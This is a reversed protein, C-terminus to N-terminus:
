SDSSSISKEDLIRKLETYLSNWSDTFNTSSKLNLYISNIYNDGTYFSAFGNLTFVDNVKNQTIDRINSYAEVSASNDYIPYETITLGM